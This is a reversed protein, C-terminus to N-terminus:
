RDICISYAVLRWDHLPVLEDETAVVRTRTLAEDPRIDDFGVRGLGDVIEAGGAVRLGSDGVAGGVYLHGDVGVERSGDGAYGGVEAAFGDVHAAAVAEEKVGVHLVQSIRPRVLM